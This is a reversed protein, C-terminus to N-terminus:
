DRWPNIVPLEAAAFPAADRTAISFGHSSTIAAIQGDFLSIAQGRSSARAAILAFGRAAREDFALIRNGFLAGVLDAMALELGKRRRGSPLKEVGSLLEALSVATLFLTEAAQKDLWALVRPDPRSRLPESVVNTDLVIV